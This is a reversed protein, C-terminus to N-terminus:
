RFDRFQEVLAADVILIYFKAVARASGVVLSRALAMSDVTKPCDTQWAVFERWRSTRNGVEFRSGPGEDFRRAFLLVDDIM